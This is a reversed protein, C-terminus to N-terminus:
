EQRRLRTPTMGTHKQIFRSFYAASNFGLESAIQKSPTRSNELMDRAAHLVRGTLMDASTIGTCSKCIRSLHTPTVGIEHAYRHMPDGSRYNREVLTTFQSVKRQAPSARRPAEERAEVERRFLVSLLAAQASLAEGYAHHQEHQERQMAEMLITLETQNKQEAVRVLEATEPFPIGESVPIRCIFGFCPPLIDILHLTGAPIILGTQAVLGRRQGGLICLGQGRTIWVLQHFPESHPLSARWAKAGTLKALSLIQPHQRDQSEMDFTM